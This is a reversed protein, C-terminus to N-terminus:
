KRARRESNVFSESVSGYGNSDNTNNFSMTEVQTPNEKIQEDVYVLEFQYKIKDRVLRIKDILTTVVKSTRVNVNSTRNKGVTKSSEYYDNLSEDVELPDEEISSTRKKNSPRGMMKSVVEIKSDVMAQNFGQRMALIEDYDKNQALNHLNNQFRIYDLNENFTLWANDITGIINNRDIEDQRSDGNTERIEHYKNKAVSSIYKQLDSLRSFKGEELDSTLDIGITEEVDIAFNHIDLGSKEVKKRPSVEKSWEPLNRDIMNVVSSEIIYEMNELPSEGQLMRSRQDYIKKRMKSLHYDAEQTNSIASTMVYEINSQASSIVKEVLEGSLPSGEKLGKKHLTRIRDNSVLLNKKLDGVSTYFETVGPDAQRAARGKLQEDDRKTNFHGYGIVKLGGANILDEKEMSLRQEAERRIDDMKHEEIFKTAGIRIQRIASPSTINKMKIMNRTTIEIQEQEVEYIMDDLDGGLKIDTGRGALQTSITVSGRRGAKSIIENEVALKANEANLKECPIGRKQFEEYLLNSETVSTTGILVPQGKERSALVSAIVAEMKEEDTEFLVTDNDIRSQYIRDVDDPDARYESNKPIEITDMGYVEQFLEKASTGTMGAIKPYISYFAKQSVSALERHEETMEIQIREREHFRKEKLEIAQQLGDSYVRGEATRGNSVLLVKKRPIGGRNDKADNLIYEKGNELVFYAKLANDIAKNLGNFESSSYFLNNLNRLEEIEKIAKDLGRLTLRLEGDELEYDGTAEFSPNELISTTNRGVIEQIRTGEFYKFAELWGRETLTADQGKLYLVSYLRNARRTTEKSGGTYLSMQEETKADKVHNTDRYLKYVFDNASNILGLTEKAEQKEKEKRLLKEVSTESPNTVSGSLKFPMVADNVLIQDAEDIIVFGVDKNRVVNESHYTTNDRLYDFAFANSSGYTIDCSYATKRKEIDQNYDNDREETVVGVTLGLGELVPAILDRDRTALADNSTAIHVSKGTLANLYAAMPATYTKGEGTKMEAVDGRHLAIAGMMQSPYQEIGLYRRSAERVVAFAEPLIEDLTEGKSIRDKFERTKTKLSADSLSRLTRYEKEVQAIIQEYERIEKKNEYDLLFDM